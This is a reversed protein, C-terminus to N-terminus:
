AFHRLLILIVHSDGIVGALSTMEGTKVNLLSADVPARDGVCISPVNELYTNVKHEIDILFANWKDEASILDEVANRVYEDTFIPTWLSQLEDKSKVGVKQLLDKYIGILKGLCGYKETVFTEANDKSEQIAAALAFDIATSAQTLAQLLSRKM